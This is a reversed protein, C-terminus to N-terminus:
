SDTRVRRPRRHILVAAAKCMAAFLLAHLLALSAPFPCCTRGPWLVRTALWMFLGFLGFLLGAAVVIVGLSWILVTGLV